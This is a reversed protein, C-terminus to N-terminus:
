WTVKTSTYYPTITGDEEFKVYKFIFKNKLKDWEYIHVDCDLEQLIAIDIYTEKNEVNNALKLRDSIDKRRTFMLLLDGISQLKPIINSIKGFIQILYMKDAMIKLYYMELQANEPLDKLKRIEDTSLLLRSVDKYNVINTSVNVQLLMWTDDTVYKNKALVQPVNYSKIISEDGRFVIGTADRPTGLVPFEAICNTYNSSWDNYIEDLNYKNSMYYLTSRAFEWAQTYKEPIEKEQAKHCVCPYTHCENCLFESPIVGGGGSGSSEDVGGLQKWRGLLYYDVFGRLLSQNTQCILAGARIALEDYFDILEYLNKIPPLAGNYEHKIIYYIDKANPYKQQNNLFLYLDTIIAEKGKKIKSFIGTPSNIYYSNYYNAVKQWCEWLTGHVCKTIIPYAALYPVINEIDNQEEYVRCQVFMDNMTADIGNDSINTTNLNGNVIAEYQKALTLFKEEKLLHKYVESDVSMYDNLKDISEEQDITTCAYMCLAYVIIYIYKM